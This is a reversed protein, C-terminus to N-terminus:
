DDASAPRLPRHGQQLNSVRRRRKTRKDTKYCGAEEIMEWLQLHYKTAWQDAVKLSVRQAAKVRSLNRRDNDGLPIGNLFWAKESAATNAVSFVDRKTLFRALYAHLQPGKFYPTVLNRRPIGEERRKREKYERTYKRRYQKVKESQNEPRLQIKTCTTCYSQLGTRHRKNRYFFVALM